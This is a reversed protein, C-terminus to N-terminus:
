FPRVLANESLDQTGHLIGPAFHITVKGLGFIGEKGAPVLHLLLGLGEISSVGGLLHGKTSENDIAM